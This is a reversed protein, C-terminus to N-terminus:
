EHPSEQSNTPPPDATAALRADVMKALPSLLWDGPIAEAAVRAESQARLADSPHSVALRLSNLYGKSATELPSGGIISAQDLPGGTAQKAWALLIQGRPHHPASAVASEAWRLATTYHSLTADPRTLMFLTAQQFIRAEVAGIVAESWQQQADELREASSAPEEGALLTALRGNMAASVSIADASRDPGVCLPALLDLATTLRKRAGELDAQIELARAANGLSVALRLRYQPTDPLSDILASLVATAAEASELAAQHEGKLLRLEAMADLVAARAELVQPGRAGSGLLLESTESAMALAAEAGDPDALDLRLQGLDIRALMLREELVPSGPQQALLALYADIAQQSADAEGALDGLRRRAAALYLSADAASQGYRLQRPDIIRAAQFFALAERFRREAVPADGELLEIQGLNLEAAALLERPRLDGAGEASLSLAADRAANLRKTAEKMDGTLAAAAGFSALIECEALLAQRDGDTSDRTQATIRAIAGQFTSSAAVWDGAEAQVSALLGEARATEIQAAHGVESSRDVAALAEVAETFSDAAAANERLTRYISGLRILSRGRELAIGADDGSEAAFGRYAEAAQQLMTRRAQVASPFYRMTESAGTLWADVSDRAVGLRQEALRRAASESEALRVAERRAADIAISALGAILAAALTGVVVPTVWKWHRRLFRSARETPSDAHAILPADALWAEVDDALARASPYRDAPRRAMARDCVAALPPPIERALERAPTFEAAQARRLKENITEGRIPAKETLLYYLTAGLSFVDAPPGLAAIDGAAQEPSMFELTGMVSGMQTASDGSYTARVKQESVPALTEEPESMIRAMGWDVVYTEGHKGLMVNDPKLDRHLVGRSHAYQVANCVEVFRTLLRRFDLNGRDFRSSRPWGRALTKAAGRLSEGRIFRMAYFPRGLPDVGLAYVPVVGPHELAGTIEGEVLFRRRKEPDDAYKEQLEKLAVERRVQEDRAVSVEGLGGAAHPKLKVFREGAATQRVLGGGREGSVVSTDHDSQEFLVTPASERDSGGQSENLAIKLSGLTPCSALVRDLSAGARLHAVSAIETLLDHEDARLSGSQVLRQGLTQDSDTEDQSTLQRLTEPAVLGLQVALVAYLLQEVDPPLEAPM